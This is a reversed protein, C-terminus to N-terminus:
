MKWGNGWECHHHPAILLSPPGPMLTQPRCEPQWLGETAFPSVQSPTESCL